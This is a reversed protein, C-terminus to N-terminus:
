TGAGGYLTFSGAGPSRLFLFKKGVATVKGDIVVMAASSREPETASAMLHGCRVYLVPTKASSIEANRLCVPRSDYGSVCAWPADQSAGSAKTLLM